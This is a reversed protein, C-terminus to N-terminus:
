NSVEATFASKKRITLGADKDRTKFTVVIYSELFFLIEFPLKVFPNCKAGAV